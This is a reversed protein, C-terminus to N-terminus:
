LHFGRSPPDVVWRAHLEGCSTAGDKLQPIKQPHSSRTCSPLIPRMRAAHAKSKSCAPVLKKIDSLSFKLYHHVIIHETYCTNQIFSPSTFTTGGKEGGALMRVAWLLQAILLVIALALKRAGVRRGMVDVWKMGVSLSLM